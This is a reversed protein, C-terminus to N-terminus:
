KPVIQGIILPVNQGPNESWYTKGGLSQASPPKEPPLSIHYVPLFPLWQGVITCNERYRRYSSIIGFMAHFRSTGNKTTTELWFFSPLFIESIQGNKPRKLGTKPM